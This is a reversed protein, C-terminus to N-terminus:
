VEKKCLLAASFCLLGPSLLDSSGLAKIKPTTNEFVGKLFWVVDYEKLFLELWNM